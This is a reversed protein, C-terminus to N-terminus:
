KYDELIKPCNSACIGCNRGRQINQYSTNWTHKEDTLQCEWGEICASVGGEPIYDLIYKYGHEIGLKRYDELNKPFVNECHPCWSDHATHHYSACWIHGFKCKWGMIPINTDDPINDLIYEGEKKEAAKKYDNIDKINRGSCVACFYINGKVTQYSNERIHGEKCKWGKVRDMTTKPIENLIYKGGKEIALNQYDLLTKPVIKFCKSCCFNDTKAYKYSTNTLHKKPCEWGDIRTTTNKPIHDLIYEMNKSVALDKYDQLDKKSM